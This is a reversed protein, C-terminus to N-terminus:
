RASGSSPHRLTEAVLAVIVPTVASAVVTGPEWIMPVLLAAAAASLAAVILTTVSLGGSSQERSM